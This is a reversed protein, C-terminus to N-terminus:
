LDLSFVGEDEELQLSEMEAPSSQLAELPETSAEYGTISWEDAPDAVTPSIATSDWCLTNPRSCQQWHLHFPLQEPPTPAPIVALDSMRTRIISAISDNHPAEVNPSPPYQSSQRVKIGNVLRYFMAADRHEAEEQELALQLESQTRSVYSSPLPIRLSRHPRAEPMSHQSRSDNPTTEIAAPLRVVSRPVGGAEKSPELDFMRDFIMKPPPAIRRYDSCHNSRKEHRDFPRSGIERRKGRGSDVPRQWHFM